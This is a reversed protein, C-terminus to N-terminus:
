WGDFLGTKPASANQAVAPSVFHAITFQVSNRTTEGNTPRRFIV